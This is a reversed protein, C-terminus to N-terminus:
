VYWKKKMELTVTKSVATKRLTAGCKVHPGLEEREQEPVPALVSASSSQFVCCLEVVNVVFLTSSKFGSADHILRKAVM